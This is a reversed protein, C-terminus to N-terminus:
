RCFGDMAPPQYAAPVPLGRARLAGELGQPPPPLAPNVEAAYYPDRGAEALTGFRFGHKRFLTMLQPMMHADFGGMHMLLVYPIDRGYLSNSMARSREIASEAGAIWAREMTGIAAQDGKAVCRAYVENYQWDGFDMTVTAVKYGHRALMARIRARRAPDDVAESLFPYRFWHWDGRGSWSKLVPENKTLEQEFQADSIQALNAHSWGHNGLPYGAKRWVEYVSASQADERGGNVFGYAEGVGAARLASTIGIAADLQTKGPPMASHHPVDDFTLAVMPAPQAAPRTTAARPAKKWSARPTLLELPVAEAMAKYGAMSPHLGDGSDLDARLHTPRAPDRTVADFDIVADFNGPSRIWANVAQRDAENTADPHYYASGGYPMITGGIAVIGRARVRAVIQRLAGIMDRVLAAHQEATAPAERTLTGLDNVGELVILHTVGPPTLVERDFRALANPGLGDNLLRNGGIGANLVAMQELATRGRLRLQLADTWRLHTNAKVGYGDTISDGLVVVASARENDVEIGGLQYWREVPKAGALEADGVHEGKALWSTARAGPHGTQRAPAQPLHFSIALDAGPEIRLAVPDSWYDAGAPIVVDRAGDFSLPRLSAPDIRSTAIDASRAVSAADIRLPATGHANSFRIRMREGGIQVRVLQRLTADTMEEPSLANNGEPVMQSSSWAAAWREQPAAAAVLMAAMLALMVRMRGM